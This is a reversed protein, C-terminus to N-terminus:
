VCKLKRRQRQCAIASDHIMMMAGWGMTITDGCMAIISAASAAIGDVYVDIPKGQARLMNLIAIGEFADGGPSNIRLTLRSFPGAADIRQKVSKATVGGGSWWNEGIQEYIMMELVGTSNRVSARFFPKLSNARAHLKNKHM